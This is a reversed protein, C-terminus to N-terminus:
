FINNYFNNNYHDSFPFKRSKQTKIIIPLIQRLIEFTPAVRYYHMLTIGSVSVIDMSWFDEAVKYIKIRSSKWVDYPRTKGM